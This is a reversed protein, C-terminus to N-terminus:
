HREFLTTRDSPETALCGMFLASCVFPGGFFRTKGAALTAESTM